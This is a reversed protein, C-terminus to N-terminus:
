SHQTRSPNGGRGLRDLGPVHRLWDGFLTAALMASQMWYPEGRTMHFVITGGWFASVLLV